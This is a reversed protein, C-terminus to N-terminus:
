TGTIAITANAPSTVGNIQIQLPVASGPTVQPVQANVQYVGPFQPTLGSFLLPSPVNGMLITPTLVTTRLQDLSDHGSQVAPTVAGLGTAYIILADNAHAPSTTLGPISGPPAALTGYRPDTSDTAIIAIATVPAVVRCWRISSSRVSLSRAM